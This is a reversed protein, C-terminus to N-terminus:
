GDAARTHGVSETRGPGPRDRIDLAERTEFERMIDARTLTGVHEIDLDQLLEDVLFRVLDGGLDCAALYLRDRWAADMKWTRRPMRTRLFFWGEEPEDIVPDGGHEALDMDINAAIWGLANHLM